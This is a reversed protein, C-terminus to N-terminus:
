RKNAADNPTASSAFDVALYHAIALSPAYGDTFSDNFLGAYSWEGDAKENVMYAAIGLTSPSGLDSLPIAVEMTTGQVAAGLDAATSWAPDDFTRLDDFTGDSKWRFYFDPRFGTPFSAAQTNYTEGQAAGTDASPDTDIYVLVWKSASDPADVAIDDGQYGVYLSDADWSVMAQYGASTTAFLEGGSFDSVGDVTITHRYAGASGDSGPRGDVFSADVIGNGDGDGNSSACAVALFLPLALAFARHV